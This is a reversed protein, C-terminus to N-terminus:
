WLWMCIVCPSMHRWSRRHMLMKINEAMKYCKKIILKECVDWVSAGTGRGTIAKKGFIGRHSRTIMGNIKRTTNPIVNTNIKTHWADFHHVFRLVALFFHLSTSLNLFVSDDFSEALTRRSSHTYVLYKTCNKLPKLRQSARKQAFSEM